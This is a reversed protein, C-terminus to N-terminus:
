RGQLFKWILGKTFNKKVTKGSADSATVREEIGPSCDFRGSSDSAIFKENAYLSINLLEKTELNTIAINGDEESSVLYKNNVMGIGIVQGSHITSLSHLLKGDTNWVQLYGVKDHGGAILSGDPSFSYAYTFFAGLYWKKIIKGDFNFLYIEKYKASTSPSVYYKLQPDVAIEQGISCNPYRRLAEGDSDFLTFGSYTEAFQNNPLIVIFKPDYEPYKESRGNLSLVTTNKRTTEDKLYSIRQERNKNDFYISANETTIKNKRVDFLYSKKFKEFEFSIFEGNHSVSIKLPELNDHLLYALPKGKFDYYIIGNKPSTCYALVTNTRSNILEASTQFPYSLEKDDESYKVNENKYTSLIEGKFSITYINESDVAIINKDDGTFAVEHIGIKHDETIWTEFQKGTSIETRRIKHIITMPYERGYKQIKRGLPDVVTTSFYTGKYIVYKSDNSINFTEPKIFVRKFKGDTTTINGPKDNELDRIYNGNEDYLKMISNWGDTSPTETNQLTVFYKGDPTIKISTFKYASSGHQLNIRKLLNYNVDRIIIDTDTSEYTIIKKGNPFYIIDDIYSWGGSAASMKQVPVNITKVIKGTLTIINVKRQHVAVALHKNDPLFAVASIIRNPNWFKWENPPNIFPDPDIFTGTQNGNVDYIRVKYDGILAFYKGDHSIVPRESQISKPLNGHSITVDKTEAQVNYTFTVILLSASVTLITLFRKM